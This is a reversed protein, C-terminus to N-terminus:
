AESEVHEGALPGMPVSTRKRRALAYLGVLALPPWAFYHYYFAPLRLMVFFVVYVVVVLLGLRTGRHVDMTM